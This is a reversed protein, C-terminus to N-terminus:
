TGFKIGSLSAIRNTLALSKPIFKRLDELALLATSTSKIQSISVRAKDLSQQFNKIIAASEQDDLVASIEIAKWQLETALRTAKDVNEGFNSEGAGIKRNTISIESLMEQTKNNINDLSKMVYDTKIKQTEFKQNLHPTIFYVSVAGAIFGLLTVWLPTETRALFGGIKNIFSRM